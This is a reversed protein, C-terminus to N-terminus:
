GFNRKLTVYPIIHRNRERFEVSSPERSRRDPSFFTRRRTAGTDLANDLGITVTTSADPRYEAFATAYIGGNRNRDLENRRFFTSASGRELFFGWAFRGLDQRFETSAFWLSNGSFARRRLTYPDEVSTDVISVYTNLRGGRIGLTSLPVDVTARAIWSEGDGLNGPADFGEPTPIRDQVLSISNYGFELRVLGDGLIKRDATLLTEWARQPVLNANGGNVRENTLEAVSIFDEFQLQAVTRAISLQLHWDGPQWDFSAKPKWFSLSRRAQADGRVTLRSAEYTLGLDMRLNPTIARGANFFAEGRHEKVTAQDVPLDIRTELGSADFSVLDVNSTLKNLASEAGAEVNWGNWGSRNWLLRVVTEDSADDLTQAFGGTTSGQVRLLSVDKNLRDRRTAVALLKLGGGALPRTVDGGIEFEDRDYRQTLRDNREVGASPSVANSQTLAFRNIFYRGNLHATRNPGADHEWSASVTGNPEDIENKKRRFETLQASPLQSLTDTGEESTADNDFDLSANFTSAGRKVLASLAGQPLIEGDFERRATLTAAGAFGGADTLILNVIQPKGIFESGFLDGPGVEVRAVRSAPIRALIVDLTDSKSSPRQGNIVVNGAAQGFGRVETDGEDLQFGPVREIIQLANSPAYTAFFDAEYIRRGTDSITQAHVPIAAGCLLSTVLRCIVLLRSM